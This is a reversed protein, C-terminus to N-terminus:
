QDVATTPATRLVLTIMRCCCKEIDWLITIVDSLLETM